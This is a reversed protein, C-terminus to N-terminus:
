SARAGSEVLGLRVACEIAESRSAVGLKRYVSIAQTKITNRSVFLREGIERFSLHTALLPLLRLEAATLGSGTFDGVERTSEIEERLADAQRELVGLHPCRRLIGMAEDLHARAGEADRLTLLARALEMRTQVAFWPLADGLEDTLREAASLDARAQDWRCRRLGARAAAALEAASTAYEDLRGAYVLERGEEALTEAASHDGGAAALMARQGIATIQIDVAGIWGAARASDALVVDAEEVESLLTLAAGRLLLAIPYWRSDTPLDALASEADALMQEAGDSCMAARVVATWPRASLSGDPMEADPRAGEAARLWQHAEEANGRVAHVWAGLSAVGPYRELDLRGSFGSLWEEVSGVRGSSVVSLAISAVIRAVRDIDGAAAAPDLAAEMEGHEEFWDAARANLAPIREAENDELERRLVDRFLHHYRYWKGSADLPVVFLNSRDVARLRRGSGSTELVADCLPGSMRSLVSCRRLFTLLEPDLAALYETRLYDGVYRDDGALERPEELRHSGRQVCRAALVLGAPWGETHELLHRVEADSPDVGAGRLLLTAERRNFALADAEIELVRGSARMPGIPLAPATRGALALISGDPVQGALTDIADLAERERILDAGDLVLVFPDPASEVAAALRPLARAWVSAGPTGLAELLSSPLPRIGGMAVAVHRVLALPDNDRDDLTVWAVHREERAAWQALLTTKGYGAPAAILVIPISTTTRLRNVLGVRSVTGDRVPPVRVKSDIVDFPPPSTQEAPGVMALEVHRRGRTTVRRRSLM